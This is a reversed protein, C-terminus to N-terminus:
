PAGEPSAARRVLLGAAAGVTLGIAAGVVVDTPFHRRVELRSWAVVGAPILLSAAAPHQIAAAASYAFATATHSSPMSSSHTPPGVAALRPRRRGAVRKIAVVVLSTTAWASTGAVAAQRATRPGTALLALSLAHWSVGGRAIASVTRAVNSSAGHPIGFRRLTLGDAVRVLRPATSM